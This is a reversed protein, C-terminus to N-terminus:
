IYMDRNKDDDTTYDEDDEEDMIEEIIKRLQPYQKLFQKIYQSDMMGPSLRIGGAPYPSQIPKKIRIGQSKLLDLYIKILEQEIETAEMAYIEDESLREALENFGKEKLEEDIEVGTVRKVFMKIVEFNLVDRWSVMKTM